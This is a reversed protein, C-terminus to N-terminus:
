IELYEELAERMVARDPEMGTWTRFNIAAQNVLMGLGDLTTCGRTKADRLLRTWPPNFVVDAVILPPNLTAIALPVRADPNGMGITTANVLVHTDAPVEYDGSWPIFLASVKVRESILDALQQGREADRNVITIQAAGALGLEVAIARAAGGAGLLVVNKGAPDLLPKLAEVFGRGDTNAGIYRREGAPAEQRYICNVAGILEASNDLGDLHKVATVKHPVTLNAGRFGMAKLGRMADELREPSVELTLYRWDLGAAAFAKEMLYQTPNGAVPQGFCCVIEQLSTQNVRRPDEAPQNEAGEWPEAVGM